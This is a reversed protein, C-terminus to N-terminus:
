GVPEQGDWDPPDGAHFLGAEGHYLRMIIIIIILSTEDGLRTYSERTSCDILTINTRLFTIKQVLQFHCLM